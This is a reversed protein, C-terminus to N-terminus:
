RHKELLHDHYEAEADVDQPVIGAIQYIDPHIDQSQAAKLRQVFRNLVASVSIGHEKAYAKIFDADETPLRLTLKATDM